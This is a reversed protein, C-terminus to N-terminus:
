VGPGDKFVVGNTVDMVVGVLKATTGDEGPDVQHSSVVLNGDM